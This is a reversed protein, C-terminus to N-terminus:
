RGRRHEDVVTSVIFKGWEWTVFAIGLIGMYGGCIATAMLINFM